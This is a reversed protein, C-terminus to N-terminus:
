RDGGIGLFDVIKDVYVGAVKRGGKKLPIILLQGDPRRFAGHSGKGRRKILEVGHRRMLTKVDSFTVEPPRKKFKEELTQRKGV